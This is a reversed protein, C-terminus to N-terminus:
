RAKKRVTAKKKGGDEGEGSGPVIPQGDEGINIAEGKEFAAQVTPDEWADLASTTPMPAVDVM